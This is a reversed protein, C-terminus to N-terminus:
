LHLCSKVFVASTLHVVTGFEEETESDKADHAM